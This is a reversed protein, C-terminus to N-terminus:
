GELQESLAPVHVEFVSWKLALPMVLGMNIVDGETGAIFKMREIDIIRKVNANKKLQGTSIITMAHKMRTSGVATPSYM